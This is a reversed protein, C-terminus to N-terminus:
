ASEKGAAFALDPLVVAKDAVHGGDALLEEAGAVSHLEVVQVHVEVVQEADRSDDIWLEL